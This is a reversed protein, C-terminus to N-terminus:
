AKAAEETAPAVDLGLEKELSKLMEQMKAFRAKKRELAKPNTVPSKARNAWFEAQAKGKMECFARWGDVVNLEKAEKYTLAIAYATPNKAKLDNLKNTRKVKLAARKAIKAPDNLAAKRKANASMTAGAKPNAM